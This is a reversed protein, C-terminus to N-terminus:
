STTKHRVVLVCAPLTVVFFNISSEMENLLYQFLIGKKKLSLNLPAESIQMMEMLLFSYAAARREM